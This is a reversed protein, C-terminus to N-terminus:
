EPLLPPPALLTPLEKREYMAFRIGEHEFEAYPGEGDWEIDIGVVKNYFNVM